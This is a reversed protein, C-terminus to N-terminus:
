LAQQSDPRDVGGIAHHLARGRGLPRHEAILVHPREDVVEPLCSTRPIRLAGACRCTRLPSGVRSLVLPTNDPLRVSREGRPLRTREALQQSLLPQVGRLECRPSALPIGALERAERRPLTTRLRRSVLKGVLVRTKLALDLLELVLQVLGVRDDVDQQAVILDGWRRCNCRGMRLRTVPRDSATSEVLHLPRRSHSWHAVRLHPLQHFLHALVSPDAMGRHLRVHIPLRRALVDSAALQRRLHHLARSQRVRGSGTRPASARSRPAAARSAPARPSSATRAAAPSAGPGSRPRGAASAAAARSAIAPRARDPDALDHERLLMAGALGRLGVERARGLERHRDDPLHEHVQQAHEHQRVRIPLPRRHAQRLRHRRQALAHLARQELEPAHRRPVLGVVRRRRRVPDRSALRRAELIALSREVGLVERQHLVEPHLRARRLDARLLLVAVDFGALPASLRRSSCASSTRPLRSKSLTSAHCANTSWTTRLALVFRPSRTASSRAAIRSSSTAFSGSYTSSSTHTLSHLVTRTLCQAYETGDRSIPSHTRTRIKSSLSSTRKASLSSSAHSRSRPRFRWRM